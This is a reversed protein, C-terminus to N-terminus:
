VRRLHRTQRQPKRRLWSPLLLHSKTRREAILVGVFILGLSGLQYLSVHEGLFIMALPIYVLPQLYWFWSAESAEILDQGKIYATLGIISGFVAMYGSAIWVSPISLDHWSIALLSSWNGQVEWLSLILFSVAGIYFSITSTLLKPLKVFYKKALVFYIASFTNHLIILGNGLLSIGSGFGLQQGVVPVVTLLVTGVMSLALGVWEHDEQKEKLWILGAVTMFFPSASAILSAEIVTTRQLGFYLCSLSLITGFFEVFTVVAITKWWHKITKRCYYFLLIPVTLVIALLYRYLLFRFPTTADLGPKVIVLAAGWTITNTLLLLYAQGRRSLKMMGAYWTKCQTAIIEAM